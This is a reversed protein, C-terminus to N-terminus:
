VGRLQQRKRKFIKEQIKWLQYVLIQFPSCFLLIETAECINSGARIWTPPLESTCVGARVRQDPKTKSFQLLIQAVNAPYSWMSHLSAEMFFQAKTMENPGSANSPLVQLALSFLYPQLCALLSFLNSYNGHFHCNLLNSHTASSQHQPRPPVRLPQLFM